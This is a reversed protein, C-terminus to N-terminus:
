LMLPYKHIRFLRLLAFGTTACWFLKGFQIVLNLELVPTIALRNTPDDFVQMCPLGCNIFGQGFGILPSWLLHRDMIQVYVLAYRSGGLLVRMDARGLRCIRFM